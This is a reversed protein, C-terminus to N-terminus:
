KNFKVSNIVIDEEISCSNRRKSEFKIEYIKNDIKTVYFIIDSNVSELTQVLWNNENIIKTTIGQNAYDSFNYSQEVLYDKEPKSTSQVSVTIYCSNHIYHQYNTYYAKEETNPPLQYTMQNNTVVQKVEEKPEIEKVQLLAIVMFYIIFILVVIQPKITGGKKSCEEILEEGTKDPNQGKIFDVRRNAEILYKQNFTFGLYFNIILRAIMGIDTSLYKYTILYIISIIFGQAFLKRYFYYFPGFIIAPFSIKSKFWDINNGIFSIIYDQDSSINTENSYNESYRYQDYHEEPTDNRVDSYKKSYNYQESHEKTTEKVDSYEKSYNYQEEHTENHDDLNVVEEDVNKTNMRTFTKSFSFSSWHSKKRKSNVKTGCRRCYKATEELETHCKPCFM